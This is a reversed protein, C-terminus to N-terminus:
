VEVGLSKAVSDDIQGSVEFKILETPNLQGLEVAKSMTALIQQKTQFPNERQMSKTIVNVNGISKQIHQSKQLTNVRNGVQQVGDGVTLLAKGLAHEFQVNEEHQSKLLGVMHQEFNYFSKAIGMVLDNLFESSAMGDLVVPYDSVHEGFSKGLKKENYEAGKPKIKDYSTYGEGIEDPDLNGQSSHGGTTIQAM